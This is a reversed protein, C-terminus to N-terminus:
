YFRLLHLQAAIKGAALSQDNNSALYFNERETLGNRLNKSWGPNDTIYTKSAGGFGGLVFCPVEKTTAIEFERPISAKGPEGAWWLGGIVVFANCRPQRCQHSRQESTGHVRRVRQPCSSRLHHRSSSQNTLMAPHRSDSFGRPLVQEDEHFRSTRVRMSPPTPLTGPM